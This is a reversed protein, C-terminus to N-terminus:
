LNQLTDTVIHPDINMCDYHEFVCKKNGYISCPRCPMEKQVINEPNQKWSLFGAYPHTAGWISVVRTGVLSALHMNASDMTLMSDLHSMLILEEKLSGLTKSADIARAHNNILHSIADHEKEGNGFFFLRCQPDEEILIDVVQQLKEQPYIKSQHAAFPAIGYWREGPQKERIRDTLPAFSATDDEYISSFDLDFHFGLEKFVRHYNEISSTLQHFNTAKHKLLAHKEKRHKDIHATKTGSLRFLTRLIKTRLVDHLDAVYDFDSVKLYKYLKFIGVVGKYEKKPNVGIFHVNEALSDFFAGAYPRSVVTIDLDNHKRALSYIVPVMMAVDGM